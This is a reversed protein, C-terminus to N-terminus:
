DGNVRLSGFGKCSLSKERLGSCSSRPRSILPQGQPLVCRTGVRSTDNRQPAKFRRGSNTSRQIDVPGSIRTTSPFVHVAAPSFATRSRSDAPLVTESCKTSWLFWGTWASLCVTASKTARISLSFVAPIIPTPDPVILSMQLVAAVAVPFVNIENLYNEMQNIRRSSHIMFRKFRIGNLYRIQIKM